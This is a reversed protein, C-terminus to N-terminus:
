VRARRVFIRVAISCCCSRRTRAPDKKGETQYRDFNYSGLHAGEALAQAMAAPKMRRSAPAIVAVKTAKHRRAARISRGGIERVAGAHLDGEAGLGMLLIRSAGGEQPYLLLSQGRSGRFDGRELASRIIGGLDRDLAGIRTPLKWHEPDLEMLPIALLPWETDLPNRTSATVQM